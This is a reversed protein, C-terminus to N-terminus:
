GSGSVGAGRLAGMINRLEAEVRNIAMEKGVRWRNSGSYTTAFKTDEGLAVFASAKCCRKSFQTVQQSKASEKEAKAKDAKAQKLAADADHRAQQEKALSAFCSWASLFFCHSV